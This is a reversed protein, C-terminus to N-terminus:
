RKLNERRRRKREEKKKGGGKKREGGGKKERKKERRGGGRERKERKGERIKEGRRKVVLGSAFPRFQVETLATPSDGIVGIDLGSRLNGACARRLPVRCLRTTSPANSAGNVCVVSSTRRRPRGALGLAERLREAARFRNRSQLLPDSNACLVGNDFADISERLGQNPAPLRRRRRDSRAITINGHRPKQSIRRIAGHFCQAVADRAAASLLKAMWKHTSLAFVSSIPAIARAASGVGGLRRWRRV